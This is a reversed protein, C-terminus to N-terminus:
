PHPGGVVRRAEAILVRLELQADWPEDEFKTRKADTDAKATWWAELRELTTRALPLNGLKSLTMALFALKRGYFPGEEITELEKFAYEYQGLRYHVSSTLSQRDFALIGPETFAAMSKLEDPELHSVGEPTLTTARCALWRDMPSAKESLAKRWLAQIGLKYGRTDGKSLLSLCGSWIFQSNFAIATKPDQVVIEGFAAYKQAGSVTMEIISRAKGSFEDPKDRIWPWLFVLSDMATDMNGSILSRIMLLLEARLDDESKRKSRRLSASLLDDARQDLPNTSLLFFAICREIRVLAHTSTCKQRIALLYTVYLRSTDDGPRVLLAIAGTLDEVINNLDETRLEMALTLAATVHQYSQEMNGAQVLAVAHQIHESIGGDIDQSVGQLGFYAAMLQLKLSRVSRSKVPNHARLLNESIEFESAALTSLGKLTLFVGLMSRASAELNANKQLSTASIISRMAQESVIAPLDKVFAELREKLKSKRAEQALRAKKSASSSHEKITQADMGGLTSGIGIFDIAIQEGPALQYSSLVARPLEELMVSLLETLYGELPAQLEKMLSSLRANVRKAESEARLAREGRRQAEQQALSVREKEVVLLAVNEELKKAFRKSALAEQDARRTANNAQIAAMEASAQANISERARIEALARASAEGDARAQAESASRIAVAALPICITAGVLILSIVLTRLTARRAAKKQRVVEAEPLNADVWSRDFARFYVRNRVVLYGELVRTLGSLKLVAVVPDTEDDQVRSDRVQRYLDLVRSRAEDPAIGEIPSELVRRSVDALNPEESRAKLSFFLQEVLRDVGGPTKATPDAAVASALKQTLYPHGATWHHIRKLLATGNRGGESLPAEYPALEALTFDTLEIRKGVNFPTIRVDRILESPTAVGLLCFTLSPMAGEGAGAPSPQPPPEPNKTESGNPTQSQGRWQGGGGSHSLPGSARRNLCERIGAFFEDTSFPLSRVFDIEDVFVVCPVGLEGLGTELAAFFKRMPGAHVQADWIAFLRDEIDLQEGVVQLMSAYWRDPDLNSGFRQLDLLVTRTGSAELAERARIMLSSKGKQRSDLVYAFEGRSLADLLDQDAQRVVYCAAGQSLTGETVFFDGRGAM